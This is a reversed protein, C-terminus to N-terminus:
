LSDTFVNSLLGMFRTHPHHIYAHYAALLMELQFESPRSRNLQEHQHLYYNTVACLQRRLVHGHKEHRANLKLLLPYFVDLYCIQTMIVLRVWKRFTSVPITKRLLARWLQSVAYDVITCCGGHADAFQSALWTDVTHPTIDRAVAGNPNTDTSPSSSSMLEARARPVRVCVFRSQLTQDVRDLSHSIFLLRCTSYFVEMMRRLQHQTDRTLRDANQVVVVKYKNRSVNLTKALDQLLDLLARQQNPLFDITNIEFHVSSKFFPFSKDKTTHIHQVHREIANLPMSFHRAILRRALTLKGSGPPGYFLTHM